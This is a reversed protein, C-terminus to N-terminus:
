RAVAKERYNRLIRELLVKVLGVMILGASIALFIYKGMTGAAAVRAATQLQTPYASLMAVISINEMLDFFITGLPLINFRRWLSEPPLSRKFVWSVLLALLASYLLPYTVDVSLYLSRLMERGTDSYSSITLYAEEPTYFYRTDLGEIGASAEQLAPM